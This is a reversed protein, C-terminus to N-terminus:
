ANGTIQAFLLCICVHILLVQAFIRASVRSSQLHESGVLEDVEPESNDDDAQEGSDTTLRPCKAMAKLATGVIEVITSFTKRQCIIAM